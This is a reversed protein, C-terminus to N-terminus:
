FSLQFRGILAKEDQRLLPATPVAPALPDLGFSTRCYDLTFRVVRTLYWNLGLAISEADDASAGPSALTPFAADDIDLASYRAAVEFAGWTGAVWDFNARPVVGTYASPEGTLVYGAAIQWGTHRLETRPATVSPRLTVASVAYEGLLGFAGRRFDLQPSVRWSQGDAVVGSNYTFFTQQGDTRYGGTRGSATKARGRSAAVGFSLQRLPSDAASKFPSVMVRAALHKEGDFESTGTSTADPVGGFVCVSYSLRGDLVAGSAQVGLDRDPMLNTVLSRENFFTGADAQLRELGIPMKFKGFRLQIAPILTLTFNADLVSVGSGGFETVFQYGYNAAFTGETILRARRLVFADVASGADDFYHRSDLQVMARLRISNAGDASVVSVGKDSMTVKPAGPAAAAAVPQEKTALRRKIAELQEELQRVQARLAALEADDVSAARVIGACVVLASVVIAARSRGALWTRALRRRIAGAGGVVERSTQIRLTKM